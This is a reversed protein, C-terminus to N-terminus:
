RLVGDARALVLWTPPQIQYEAQLWDFVIANPEIFDADDDGLGADTVKASVGEEIWVFDQISGNRYGELQAVGDADGLLECITAYAILQLADRRSPRKSHNTM